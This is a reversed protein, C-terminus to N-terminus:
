KSPSTNTLINAKTSAHTHKATCKSTMATDNFSSFANRKRKGKDPGNAKANM